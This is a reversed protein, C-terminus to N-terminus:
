ARKYRDRKHPPRIREPWLQEIIKIVGVESLKINSLHHWIQRATRDIKANMIIWRVSDNGDNGDNGVWKQLSLSTFQVTELYGVRPLM